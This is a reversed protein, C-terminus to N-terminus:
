KWGNARSHRSDWIENAYRITHLYLARCSNDCNAIFLDCSIYDMLNYLNHNEGLFWFVNKKMRHYLIMVVCIDCM